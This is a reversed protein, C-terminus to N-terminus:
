TTPSAVVVWCFNTAGALHHAAILGECSMRQKRRIFAISSYLLASLPLGREVHFVRGSTINKGPWLNQKYIARLPFEVVGACM